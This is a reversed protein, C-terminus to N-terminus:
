TKQNQGNLKFNDPNDADLTWKLPNNRIYVRINDLSEEDRIIHDYFSRQWLKAGPTGRYINVQKTSTTKFAGILSGLSKPKVRNWTPATRSDCRCVDNIIVIGHLHNPMIVWADLEVYDYQKSLWQWSEAVMRGVDNLRMRENVIDGFMSVRNQTCITVFYHGAQSYDYNQLRNSKWNRNNMIVGFHCSLFLATHNDQQM